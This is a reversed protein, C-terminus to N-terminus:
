KPQFDPKSFPKFMTEDLWFIPLYLSSSFIMLLTMEVLFVVLFITLSIIFVYSDDMGHFCM